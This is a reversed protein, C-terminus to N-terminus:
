TRDDKRVAAVFAAMKAPDKGGDTEIGSSVDVAWPRLGEVAAGVNDPDLGGALFYSRKVQRLLTWDFVTGTGAGSDLLIHDAASAEALTLDAATRVQVAQILPRATLRRLAAIYEPGEGGHLQALDIVGSNLLAAVTELAESVFVGVAQIEPSLRKKLAEAQQPSVYRKSQLPPGPTSKM